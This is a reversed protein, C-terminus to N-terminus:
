KLWMLLLAGATLSAAGIFRLQGDTLEGMRRFTDRWMAPAVFPLLGELILVLAFAAPWDGSM